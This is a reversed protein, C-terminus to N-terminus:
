GLCDDGAPKGRDGGICPSAINAVQGVFPSGATVTITTEGAAAVATAALVFVFALALVCSLLRRKPVAV